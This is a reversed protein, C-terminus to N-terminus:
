GPTVAGAGNGTFNYNSVPWNQITQLNLVLSGPTSSVLSGFLQTSLLRVSGTNTSSAGTADLTVVGSAPLEYIGRAIIHQGVSVSNYDLGKLTTNGDVTVITGPGLLVVANADNYQSTGDNIQLTSGRLTVTNGNRAIVDGELGQTFFDELSSGALVFTSKFDGATVGANLTATPQLPTYAATM